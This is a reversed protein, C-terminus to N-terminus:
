RIRRRGPLHRVSLGTGAPNLKVVFADGGYEGGGNHTPDFAGPTTPFDTSRTDGTVYPRVRERGRRNGASATVYEGGGLFTAYALGTGAANLKVVFADKGDGNHTTDYGPGAPFDASYTRGTVYAAGAGDVAIGQARTGTSGGGLFTAYALAQVPVANLKVM